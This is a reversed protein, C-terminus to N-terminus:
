EGNIAEWWHAGKGSLDLRLPVRLVDREVVGKVDSYTERWVDEDISMGYSDHTNLLLRGRNGLAEEILSWNEKNVDASTAQILIGSAKYSKWGKPFRLRRGYMTQIVHEKEARDACRNALQKVGQIRNHYQDILQMAEEGAKKYTVLSGGRPTFSEWTFPLGLSEAIAGNGSNFIMSLNLQKANAGGEPRPNRPIKMLDAVFQHLDADPNKAYYEILAKNYASVLHAFMRVEFSALDCDVWIQGEDPLFCPKVIAAVTKNKNPIQQLAPNVYSFRGTGTGGDEGKVQNITPYVRGDISHEMIHKKLFTDRTRIISRMQVIMMAREDGLAILNQLVPNDLSPNGKPTVGCHVGRDTIWQGGKEYVGFMKKIQPSSNVNIECGALKNLTWQREKEQEDLAPIAKEAADLDVRVGKSVTRIVVPMTDREFKCIRQIGQREIEKEQWEWLRMTLNTDKKAYKKVLELPARCLNPMQVNRTPLGGFIDALEQYIITEKGEDLYLQCLNELSYSHLHEDILNARIATDDLKHLPLDLGSNLLMLYDFQANHMIIRSGGWKPIAERLWQIVVGERTDWYYDVMDPTTISIGFVEDRKYQLGTTETDIAFRDYNNLDPFM